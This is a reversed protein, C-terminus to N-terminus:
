TMSYSSDPPFPYMDPLKRESAARRASGSFRLDASLRHSGTLRIKWGTRALLSDRDGTRVSLAAHAHEPTNSSM